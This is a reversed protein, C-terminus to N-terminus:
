ETGPRQEDTLIEYQLHDVYHSFKQQKWRDDFDRFPWHKSLKRREPLAIEVIRAADKARQRVIQLDKVTQEFHERNMLAVWWRNDSRERGFIQDTIVKDEFSSIVADLAEQLLTLQLLVKSPLLNHMATVGRIEQIFLSAILVIGEPRYMHSAAEYSGENMKVLKTSVSNEALYAKQGCRSLIDRLRRLLDNRNSEPTAGLRQEVLSVRKQVMLELLPSSLVQVALNDRNLYSSPYYDLRRLLDLYHMQIQDLPRKSRRSEPSLLVLLKRHFLALWGEWQTYSIRTNDALMGIIVPLRDCLFPHRILLAHISSQAPFSGASKGAIQVVIDCNSIYGDLKELTDTGSNIFDEQIKVEVNQRTLVSRLYNRHDEFEETVASLFM